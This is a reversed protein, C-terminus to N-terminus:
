LFGAETQNLIATKKQVDQRLAGCFVVCSPADDTPFSSFETYLM